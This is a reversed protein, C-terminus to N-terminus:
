AREDQDSFLPVARHKRENKGGGGGGLGPMAWATGRRGVGGGAGNGVPGARGRGVDVGRGGRRGGQIDIRIGWLLQEFEKGRQQSLDRGGVIGEGRGGGHGWGASRGAGGHVIWDPARECCSGSSGEGRGGCREGEMCAVDGGNRELGIEEADEFVAGGCVLDKEAEQDVKVAHGLEGCVGRSACEDYIRVIDM